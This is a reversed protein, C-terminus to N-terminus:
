ECDEAVDVSAVTQGDDCPVPTNPPPLSGVKPSHDLVCALRIEDACFDLVPRHPLCCGTPVILLRTYHGLETALSSRLLDTADIWSTHMCHFPTYLIRISASPLWSVAHNQM